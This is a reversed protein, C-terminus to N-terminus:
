CKLIWNPFSNISYAKKKKLVDIIKKEELNKESCNNYPGGDPSFRPCSSTETHNSQVVEMQWCKPLGIALGGKQGKERYLM